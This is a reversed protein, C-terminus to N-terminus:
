CSDSVLFAQFILVLFAGSLIFEFLNPVSCLDQVIVDLSIDPGALCSELARLATALGEGDALTSAAFAQLDLVTVRPHASMYYIGILSLHTARLQGDGRKQIFFVALPVLSLPRWWEIDDRRHPFESRAPLPM